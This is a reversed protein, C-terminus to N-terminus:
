FPRYYKLKDYHSPVSFKMSAPQDIQIESLNLEAKMNGYENSGIYFIRQFPLVLDDVPKFNSYNGKVTENKENFLEFSTLRLNNKDLRLFAKHGKITTQCIVETETQRSEIEKSDIPPVHGVIYDQLERFTLDANYSELLTQLSGQEYVNEWRYIITFEEPTILVRAVEIGLKKVVMWIASDRKIRLYVKASISEESNSMRIKGVTTFWEYPINQNAIAELIESKERSKSNLGKKTSKCASM